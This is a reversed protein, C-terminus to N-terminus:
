ENNKKYTLLLTGGFSVAALMMTNMERISTMTADTAMTVTQRLVSSMAITFTVFCTMILLDYTRLIDKSRQFSFKSKSRETKSNVLIDYISDQELWNPTLRADIRYM